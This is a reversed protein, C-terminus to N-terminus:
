KLSLIDPAEGSCILAFFLHPTGHRAPPACSAVPLPWDPRPSWSRSSHERKGGSHASEHVNPSPMQPLHPMVWSTSGHSPWSYRPVPFGTVSRQGVGAKAQWTGVYWVLWQGGKENRFIDNSVNLIVHLYINNGWGMWTDWRDVLSIESWRM